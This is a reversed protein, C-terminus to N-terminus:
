FIVIYKYMFCFTFRILNKGYRQIGVSTKSNKAISGYGSDLKGKKGESPILSYRQGKGITTRMDPQSVTNWKMRHKSLKIDSFRDNKSWNLNTMPYM